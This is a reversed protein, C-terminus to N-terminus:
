YPSIRFLPLVKMSPLAVFPRATPIPTAVLLVSPLTSIVRSKRATFLRPIVTVLIPCEVVLQLSPIQLLNFPLTALAFTAM